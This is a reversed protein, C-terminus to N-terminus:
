GCDCICVWYSKDKIAKDRDKVTWRGFRKGVLSIARPSTIGKQICGCSRSKGSRLSNGSVEKETGCQCVCLWLSQKHIGSGRRQKVTWRDFTKGIMSEPIKYVQTVSM